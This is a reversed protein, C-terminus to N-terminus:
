GVHEMDTKATTDKWENSSPPVLEANRYKVSYEGEIWRDVFDETMLVDNNILPIDNKTVKFQQMYQQQEATPLDKWENVLMRWEHKPVEIHKITGEKNGKDILKNLLIWTRDRFRLFM